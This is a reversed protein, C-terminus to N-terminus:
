KAHTAVKRIVDATQEAHSKGGSGNAPISDNVAWETLWTLSATSSRTKERNQM